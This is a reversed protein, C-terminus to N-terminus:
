DPLRIKWERGARKVVATGSNDLRLTAPGIEYEGDSKARVAGEPVRGNAFVRMVTLMTLESAPDQTATEVHWQDPTRQNKVSELYKYDPAPDYGTWQRSKLPQRSVYDVQVGAKGRDLLLQADNVKFQQQGHLMFQFTSPKAARLDDVLVVIDPKIFFVHRRARTLKGEYAATADGSVFDLGDEFQSAAIRGGLDASHPKQGEGNVLVSNQSKANWVWDRHFPSGYLDRYVNNVLLPVGYANLTFANHPDHGHSWRGMPSSKFRVQVNRASDLLDSNLVAVGTGRFV